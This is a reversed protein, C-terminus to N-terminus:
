AFVIHPMKEKLTADVTVPIRDTLFKGVEYGGVVHDGDKVNVHRKLIVTPNQGGDDSAVADGISKASALGASLTIVNTAYDISSITATEAAITITDGAILRGADSVTITTASMASAATLETGTYARYKGSTMIKAVPMGKKIKKNGDADAPVKAADLTIGNTVERIVEFSALIEYESDVEFREKPNLRM